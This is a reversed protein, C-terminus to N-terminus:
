QVPARTRAARNQRIRRARVYWLWAGSGALGALVLGTLVLLTRTVVGGWLGTHVTYIWDIFESGAPMEGAVYRDIAAGSEADYYLQITGDARFTRDSDLYVAVVRGGSSFRLQRLLPGPYAAHAQAILREVAILPVKHDSVKPAPKGEAHTVTGLADRFPEKWVLLVGTVASLLLFIAAGAGVARHLSRWKPDPKADWRVKFGQGLRRRGPWWVIPGTIALFLLGLGEIGVITEGLPGILLHEHVAFVWELPWSALGGDRVIARRYPDIAVLLLADDAKRRLKFLVTQNVARAFEARQVVAEPHRARVTELLAQVPQRVSGPQVTLAPHVLPEIEDRFVLVTGTLAQVALLIALIGGIWRHIKL